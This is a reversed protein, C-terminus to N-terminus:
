AERFDLWYQTEGQPREEIAIDSVDFVPIGGMYFERELLALEHKSPSYEPFLTEM